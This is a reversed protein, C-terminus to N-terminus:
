RSFAHRNRPKGDNLLHQPQQALNGIERSSRERMELTQPQTQQAPKRHSAPRTGNSEMARFGFPVSKRVSINRGMGVRTPRGRRTM